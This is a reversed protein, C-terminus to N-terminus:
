TVRGIVKGDSSVVQVVDLIHGDPLCGFGVDSFIHKKGKCWANPLIVLRFYSTDRIKYLFRGIEISTRYPAFYVSFIGWFNLNRPPVTYFHNHVLFEQETVM